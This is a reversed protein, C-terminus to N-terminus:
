AFVLRYVQDINTWRARGLHVVKVGVVTLLLAAAFPILLEPGSFDVGRLARRLVQLIGVQLIYALLSYKGLEILQRRLPSDTSRIGVLYIALLSVCVGVVQLPFLVNWRTIAALYIIYAAAIWRPRQVMAEIRIAPLAGILLGLAGISMLGLSPVRAGAVSAAIGLILALVGCAYVASHLRRSLVLALPSLLLLYSIPVLVEFMARSDGLVYIGFLNAVFSRLGLTAGNYNQSLALNALLNLVTFVLLLKVGRVLLRVHVGRDGEAHRALYVSSIIFGTIFIFSPTLFRLYRYIDWSLDVFYNLWHYVVMVLVLSGKTFDLADNRPRARVAIAVAAPPHSVVTARAVPRALSRTATM